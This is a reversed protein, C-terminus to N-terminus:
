AVLYRGPNSRTNLLMLTATTLRTKGQQAMGALVSGVLIYLFLQCKDGSQSRSIKKRVRTTRSAVSPLISTSPSGREPRLHSGEWQRGNGVGKMVRGNEGGGSDIEIRVFGNLVNNSSWIRSINGEKRNRVYEYKGECGWPTEPGTSLSEVSSSPSSIVLIMQFFIWSSTRAIVGSKKVTCVFVM